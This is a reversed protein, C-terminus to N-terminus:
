GTGAGVVAGDQCPCGSVVGGETLDGVPEDAYQVATESAVGEVVGSM